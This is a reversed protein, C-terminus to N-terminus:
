LLIPPHLRATSTTTATLTTTVSRTPPIVIRRRLPSKLPGHVTLTHDPAPTSTGLSTRSVTITLPTFRGAADLTLTLPTRVTNAFTTVAELAVNISLPTDPHSAERCFGETDLLYAGAAIDPSFTDSLNYIDGTDTCIVTTTDPSIAWLEHDAHNWALATAGSLVALRRLRTGSLLVIDGSAIAAIGDCTPTVACPASVVRTDLLSTSITARSLDANALLIGATTFVYFRSRGFDWGSQSFIAESIANVKGSTVTASAAAAAPASPASAVIVRPLSVRAPSQAPVTFVDAVDPLTFPRLSPHVYVARRRSPDPSLPFTGTLVDKGSAKVTITLSVADPAPYSIVPSFLLPAGSTSEAVTVLSSSDAFTVKVAAHWSAAADATIAMASARSPQARIVGIGSWMVARSGSAARTATFSHPASLMAATYSLPRVPTRLVARLAAIDDDIGASATTSCLTDDALLRAVRRCTAASPRPAMSFPSPAPTVTCWANSDARRRPHVSMPRSLDFPYLVPSTILRIDADPFKQIFDPDIDLAISWAPAEVTAALTTTSDSSDFTIAGTAPVGDPCTLLLPESLHILAGSPATARVRAIVPQWYLGEARVAADIDRLAQRAADRVKSVAVSPLGVRVPAAAVARLTAAPATCAAKPHLIRTDPDVDFTAPGAATMVVLTGDSFAACLPAAPLTAAPALTGGPAFAIHVGNRALLIGDLMAFPQWGAPLRLYAARTAPMLAGTDPDPRLNTLKMPKFKPTKTHLTLPHIHATPATQASHAPLKFIRAGTNPICPAGRPAVSSRPRPPARM